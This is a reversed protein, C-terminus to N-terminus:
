ERAALDGLKNARRPSPSSSAGTSSAATWCTRLHAFLDEPPPSDGLVAREVEDIDVDQDGPSPPPEPLAGAYELDCRTAAEVVMHELPSAFQNHLSHGAV